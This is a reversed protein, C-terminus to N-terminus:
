DNNGWTILARWTQVGVIGDISTGTFRQFRRLERETNTGFAGDVQERILHGNKVLGWQVARVEEGRDGPRLTNDAILRTWTHAGAVGDQPLGVLGQYAKVFEETRKGYVGDAPIAKVWMDRQGRLLHQLILVNPGSEGGRRLVPYPFTPAAQAAVPAVVLLGAAVVLIAIVRKM